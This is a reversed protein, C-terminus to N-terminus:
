LRRACVPCACPLPTPPMSSSMTWVSPGEPSNLHGARRSAYTVCVRQRLILTKGSTQALTSREHRRVHVHLVCAPAVTGAHQAHHGVRGQVERGVLPVAAGEDRGPAVVLGPGWSQGAVHTRPQGHSAMRGARTRLRVNCTITAPASPAAGRLVARVMRVWLRVADRCSMRRLGHWGPQVQQCAHEEETRHRHSNVCEGQM